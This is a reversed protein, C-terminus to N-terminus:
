AIGEKTRPSAILLVIAITGTAFGIAMFLVGGQSVMAPAVSGLIMATVQTWALLRADIALLLALSYVLYTVVTALAAGQIGGILVGPVTFVVNVLCAALSPWLTRRTARRLTAVIILYAPLGAAVQAGAITGVVGEGAAYAEGGLIGVLHPGALAVLIALITMVLLQVHVLRRLLALAAGEQDADWLRMIIAYAALYVVSAPMALLSEGVLYGLSYVGADERGLLTAVIFRDATAAFNITLSAGVLPVGVVALHRLASVTPRRPRPLRPGLLVLLWTSAAWALVVYDVRGTLAAAGGMAAVRLVSYGVQLWTYATAQERMQLQIWQLRLLLFPVLLLAVGLAEPPGGVAATVLLLVTGMVSVILLWTLAQTEERANQRQAQRQYGSVLWDGALVSVYPLAAAVLSYGGFGSPSLSRALLPITLLGM